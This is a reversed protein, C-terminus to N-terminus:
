GEPTRRHRLSLIALALALAGLAAIIAALPLASQSLSHGVVIGIASAAVQQVFGLV